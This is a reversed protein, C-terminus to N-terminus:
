WLYCFVLLIYSSLGAFYIQIKSSKFRSKLMFFVATISVLAFLIYHLKSFYHWKWHDKIMILLEKAENYSSAPMLQNLFISGYTNRLYGNYLFYAFFVM